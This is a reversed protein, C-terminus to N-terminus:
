GEGDSSSAPLAFAKKAYQMDVCPRSLSNIYAVPWFIDTDRSAGKAVDADSFVHAKSLDTTYGKGDKAWWLMNNGVFKRKDQLYFGETALAANRADPTSSRRIDQAQHHFYKKRSEHKATRFQELRTATLDGANAFLDITALVDGCERELSCRNDPGGNPHRSDYGHRLIKGIAQVVEGCEEALCALREAEAPTLQNFHTM